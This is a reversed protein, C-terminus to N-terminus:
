QNSAQGNEDNDKNDDEEADIAEFDMFDDSGGQSFQEIDEHGNDEDYIPVIDEFTGERKDSDQDGGTQDVKSASKVSRLKESRGRLAAYSNSSIADQGLM